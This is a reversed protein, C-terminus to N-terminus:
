RVTNVEVTTQTLLLPSPIRGNQGAYMDATPAITLYLSQGAPVDVAIGPLEVTRRVGRVPKPERLPLTNNQVVRATLPSTGVSLAFYAAADPLL